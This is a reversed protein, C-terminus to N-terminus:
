AMSINQPWEYKQRNSLQATTVQTLHKYCNNQKPSLLIFYGNLKGKSHFDTKFTTVSYHRSNALYTLNIWEEHYNIRIVYSRKSTLGIHISSHQISSHKAQQIILQCQYLKATSTWKTLWVCCILGSSVLFLNNNHDHWAWTELYRM